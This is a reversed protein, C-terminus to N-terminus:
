EREMSKKLILILVTGASATGGRWESFQTTRVVLPKHSPCGGRVWPSHKFNLVPTLEM